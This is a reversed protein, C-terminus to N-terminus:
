KKMLLCELNANSFKPYGQQIEWEKPKYVGWLSSRSDFYEFTTPIFGNCHTPDQWYQPSGAYPVSVHLMCGSKMIRWLENFVDITLWPKIHEMIHSAEIEDCSEDDIPYPFEEIDHVIDVIDLNRKDMGIFGELKYEGCGLDLKM